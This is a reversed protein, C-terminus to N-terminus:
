EERFDFLQKTTVGLADSLRFLVDFSPGVIGREIASVYTRDIDAEEALQMQSWRNKKRYYVVNLGFKEYINRYEEKERVGGHIYKVSPIRNFFRNYLSMSLNAFSM